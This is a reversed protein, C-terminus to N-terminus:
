QGSNQLYREWEKDTILTVSETNPDFVIKIRGTELQKQIRHVKKSHELEVAGYDTGERMIFSDILQDLAESSIADPPVEIPPQPKQDQDKYDTM